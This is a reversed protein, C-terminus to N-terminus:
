RVAARYTTPWADMPVGKCVPMASRAVEVLATGTWALDSSAGCDGIGRGKDFTSLTKGDKNLWPNTLSDGAVPAGNKRSGGTTKAATSPLYMTYSMNYAGGIECVGYLMAGRADQFAIPETGQPCDENAKPLQKASAPLTKPVTLTLAQVQPLAPVDPITAIARTGRRLLASPTGIRQQRDDVYLLAAASGKLSVVSADTPVKARLAVTLTKADRLADIFRMADAGRLTAICFDDECRSGFSGQQSADKAPAPTTVIQPNGVKKDTYYAITVTPLDDRVGSRAIRVYAGIQGDESPMGIAVCSRQNDCGVVWDGFTAPEQQEKAIAQGSALLVGAALTAALRESTSARRRPPAQRDGGVFPSLTLRSM